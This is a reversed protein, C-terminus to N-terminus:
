KTKLLLRKREIREKAETLLLHIKEEFQKKPPLDTWYEAVMIGDKHMELLEIQERSGDFAAQEPFFVFVAPDTHHDTVCDFVTSM